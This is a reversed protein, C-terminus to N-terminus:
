SNEPTQLLTEITHENINLLFEVLVLHVFVLKPLRLFPLLHGRERIM